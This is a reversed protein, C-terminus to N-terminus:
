TKCPVGNASECSCAASRDCDAPLYNLRSNDRGSKGTVMHKIHLSLRQGKPALSPYIHVPEGFFFSKSYRQNFSRISKQGKRKGRVLFYQAILAWPSGASSGLQLQLSRLRGDAGGLVAFSQLPFCHTLISM